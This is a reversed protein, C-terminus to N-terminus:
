ELHNYIILWLFVYETQHKTNQILFLNLFTSKSLVKYMVYGCCHLVYINYVQIIM